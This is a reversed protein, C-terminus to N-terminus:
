WADVLADRVQMLDPAARDLHQVATLLGAGVAWAQTWVGDAGMGEHKSIAFSGPFILLSEGIMVSLVCTFVVQARRFRVFPLRPATTQSPLM